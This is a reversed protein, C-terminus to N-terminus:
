AQKIFGVTNKCYVMASYEKLSYTWFEAKNVEEGIQTMM